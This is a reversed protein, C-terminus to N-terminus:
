PSNPSGRRPRRISSRHNLARAVYTGQTIKLYKTDSAVLFVTAVRAVENTRFAVVLGWHHLVTWMIRFISESCELASMARM